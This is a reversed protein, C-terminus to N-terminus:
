AELFGKNNFIPLLKEIVSRLSPQNIVSKRLENMKEMTMEGMEAAKKNDTYFMPM